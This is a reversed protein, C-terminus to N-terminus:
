LRANKYISHFLITKACHKQSNKALDRALLNIQLSNTSIYMVDGNEDHTINILDDYIFGQNITQYVAEEVAKQSLSRTKAISYEIIVPNVIYNLYLIIFLIIIFIISIFIGIKLKIPKRRKIKYQLSSM